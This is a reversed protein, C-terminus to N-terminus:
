AMQENKIISTEWISHKFLMLSIIAPNSNRTSFIQMAVISSENKSALFRVAHLDSLTKKKIMKLYNNSLLIDETSLELNKM